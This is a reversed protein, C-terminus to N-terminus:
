LFADLIYLLNIDSIILFAWYVLLFKNNIFMYM